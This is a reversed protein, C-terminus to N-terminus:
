SIAHLAAVIEELVAPQTQQFMRIAAIGAAGANLCDAANNATVGGIAIVRLQTSRCAAALKAIGQPPGYPRKAPNDFVPGFFAYNVGVQEARQIEEISHCSVGVLLDTSGKARQRWQIVDGAPLSSGGLHVGGAGAALAVDLRDNLFVLTKGAGLGSASVSKRNTATVAERATALLQQASMAKERIQVWDVSAAVAADIKASIGSGSEVLGLSDTVYCVIPKV